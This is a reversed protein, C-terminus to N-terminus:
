VWSFFFSFVNVFFLALHLLRLQSRSLLGIFLGQKLGGREMLMLAM